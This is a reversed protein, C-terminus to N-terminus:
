STRRSSERGSLRSQSLSRVCTGGGRAAQGGNGRGVVCGFAMLELRVLLLRELAAVRELRRASPVGDLLRSAGARDADDDPARGDCKQSPTRGKGRRGTPRSGFIMSVLRARACNALLVGLPGVVVQREVVEEADRGEPPQAVRVRRRDPGVGVHLLRADRRQVVVRLVAEVLREPERRECLLDARRGLRPGAPVGVQLPVAVVVLHTQEREGRRRLRLRLPSRASSEGRRASAGSAPLGSQRRRAGWPTRWPCAPSSRQSRDVHTALRATCGRALPGHSRPEASRPSHVLAGLGTTQALYIALARTCTLSASLVAVLRQSGRLARSSDTTTTARTSRRLISSRPRLAKGPRRTRARSRAAARTSCTRGGAGTM